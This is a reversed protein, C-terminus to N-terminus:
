NTQLGGIFLNPSSWTANGGGAITAVDIVGSTVHIIVTYTNNGLVLDYSNYGDQANINNIQASTGNHLNTQAGNHYDNIWGFEMSNLGFTFPANQINNAAILVANFELVGTQPNLVGPYTPTPPTADDALVTLILTDIEGGLDALLYEQRDSFPFGYAGPYLNYIVDAYQNYYINAGSYPQNGWWSSSNNGYTGGMYGFNYGSIFDRYVAAYFDNDSVYHPTSGSGSLYYVGNCTYIANSNIDGKKHVLEKTKLTITQRGPMTMTVTSSGITGSYNYPKLGSDSYYNGAITFTSDVTSKVYTSLSQYGKPAKVPSLIRVTEGANTINTRSQDTSVNLLALELASGTTNPALSFQDINLSYTSIETQLVLPIAYFDVSTLNAMGAGNAYTLEMKDFRTYYDPDSPNAGDPSNTSLAKDFSFYIRGSSVSTLDFTQNSSPSLVGTANDVVLNSGTFLIYVTRDTTNNIQVSLSHLSFEGCLLLLGFIIRFLM